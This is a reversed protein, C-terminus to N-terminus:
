EGTSLRGAVSIEFLISATSPDAELIVKVELEFPSIVLIGVESLTVIGGVLMLLSNWASGLVM